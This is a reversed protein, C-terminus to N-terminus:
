KGTTATANTEDVGQPRPGYVPLKQGAEYAGMDPGKGLFGDNINPLRTGQDVVATGPLPRLDAPKREPLPPNPFEVGKFISLDVQV